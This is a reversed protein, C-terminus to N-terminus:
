LYINYNFNLAMSGECLSLHCLNDQPTYYTDSCTMNNCCQISTVADNMQNGLLSLMLTCIITISAFLLISFFIQNTLRM